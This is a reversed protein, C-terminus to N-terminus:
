FGGRESLVPQWSQLVSSMSMFALAPPLLLASYTGLIGILRRMNVHYQQSQHNPPFKQM